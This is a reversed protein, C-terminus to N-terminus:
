HGDAFEVVVVPDHVLLRRVGLDRLVQNKSHPDLLPNRLVSTLRALVDGTTTRRARAAERQQGQELADLRGQLSAHERELGVLEERLMDEPVLGRLALRQANAKLEANRVLSTRLRKMEVARTESRSADVNVTQVLGQGVDLFSKWALLGDTRARHLVSQPRGSRSTCDEGPHASCFTCPLQLPDPQVGAPTTAMLAAIDFAALIKREPMTYTKTCRRYGPLPEYGPRKSDCYYRWIVVDRNPNASGAADNRGYMRHGCMGCHVLGDFIRDGYARKTGQRTGKRAERLVQGRDFTEVPVLPGLPCPKTVRAPDDADRVELYKRGDADRLTQQHGWVMEGRYLRNTLIGGVSNGRWMAKGTKTPVGADTLLRAIGDDSVGGAAWEFLQRLWKIENPHEELQGSSIKKGRVDRLHTGAPLAQGDPGIVPAMRTGFAPRMAVTGHIVKQRLNRRTRRRIKLVEAAAKVAREDAQQMKEDDHPDIRGMDETVLTLHLRKCLRVVEDRQSVGATLRELENVVIYGVEPTQELFAFMEQLGPRERLSRSLGEDTFRKVITLEEDIALEDNIAQQEPISSQAETSFRSYDVALPALRAAQLERKSPTRSAKPV